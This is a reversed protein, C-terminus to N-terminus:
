KRNTLDDILSMMRQKTKRNSSSSTYTAASCSLLATLQKHNYETHNNMWQHLDTETLYYAKIYSEVYERNPIPRINTLKELKMLFQQYDLQMLARGENSCKKVNSFGEVFAQNCITICHQWIVKVVEDPLRVSRVLGFLTIRFNSLDNLLLDVYNNHQSMIERVDWNVMSMRNVTTAVDVSHIAIGLYSPYRVDTTARVTQSYFQQLFAKKSSPIMEELNKHLLEFQSALCILSETAVIRETIGYYSSPQNLDVAPSLTPVSIQPMEQQANPAKGNVEPTFLTTEIHTVTSQLRDLRCRHKEEDTSFFAYVAYFYLDFLQSMCIVVDLAIPQLVDCMKLYSGCLRLVHLATNTLVPGHPHSPSKLSQTSSSGSMPSEGTKEDVYDLSLEHDIDDEDDSNEYSDYRPKPKNSDPDQSSKQLDSFPHGESNFPDFYRSGPDLTTVETNPDDKPTLQYTQKLFKFEDMGFVTFSSRVPCPQWAENELFMLLEDLRTRHHSHFYSLTQQRLPETLSDIPQENSSPDTIFDEGVEIFRKVIDLIMIFDDYKFGNLESSLIFTKIRSQADSWVRHRGHALKGNVYSKIDDDTLQGQNKHHWKSANHYCLMISWVGKCLELLCPIYFDKNILSCIDKYQKKQLNSECKSLEAFGFVIQFATNHISATYHMLLQDVASQTKGLLQYGQQLKTYVTPDFLRCTKSLAVDIQEEILELTDQLKTSLDKICHYHKYTAAAHQCELCLQIAGAYDEDEMLESLRVDSHQLTKITQLAEWLTLLSERKQQNSLLSLSATSCRVGVSMLARRGNSCIVFANHLSRQLEQVEKLEKIYSPQNHLIVDSLKKSVANQQRQLSERRAEIFELTSNDPMAELELQDPDTTTVFFAENISAITDRDVQPNRIRNVEKYVYHPVQIASTDIRDQKLVTPKGVQDILEKLKKM